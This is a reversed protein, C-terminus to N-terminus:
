LAPTKRYEDREIRTLTNRLRVRLGWRSIPNAARAYLGLSGAVDLMLDGAGCRLNADFGTLDGAGFVYGVGDTTVTAKSQTRTRQLVRRWALVIRGALEAPFVREIADVPQHTRFDPVSKGDPSDKLNWVQDRVSAVRVYWDDKKEYLMVAAEPLFSPAWIEYVQADINELLLRRLAGFYGDEDELPQVHDQCDSCDQEGGFCSVAAAETAFAIVSSLALALLKSYRIAQM